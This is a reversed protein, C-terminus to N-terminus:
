GTTSTSTPATTTTTAPTITTSTVPTTTTTTTGNVVTGNADLMDNITSQAPRQLRADKPVFGVTILTRAEIKHTAPNGTLVTGKTSVANPWVEVKVFGHKGADPTGKACTQGNRYMTHPPVKLLNSTLEAGPYDSFFAGLNANNGAEAATKPSVNIIGVGPTSVGVTTANISAALPSLVTGCVNISYGAFLTTGVAPQAAAAKHHHQYEYRAFVISVLGLIVIVILAAYWNVPVQGRYTRGGGTAAARSVWKGTTSPSM